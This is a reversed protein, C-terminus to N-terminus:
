NPKLGRDLLRREIELRFWEDMYGVTPPLHEILEMLVMGQLDSWLSVTLPVAFVPFDGDIRNTVDQFYASLHPPINLHHAPIEADNEDIVRYMARGIAVMSRVAAPITLEAPAVYGPIPNGFILQFETKHERAWQRYALLSEIMQEYAPLEAHTEAVIEVAEALGNFADLILATILDDMRPFYYYLAPATLDLERAIARLSLGQTGREAMLRRATDKIANHTEERLEPQAKRPM